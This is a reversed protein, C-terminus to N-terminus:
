AACVPGTSWVIEGTPTAEADGVFPDTVPVCLARIPAVLGVATLLWGNMWGDM